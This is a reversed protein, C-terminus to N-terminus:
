EAAKYVEIEFIGVGHADWDIADEGGLQEIEDASLKNWTIQIETTTVKDFTTKNVVDAEVGYGSGNTVDVFEGDENLYQITYDAAFDTGGGTLWAARAAERDASKDSWFMIGFGDVTVPDDWVLSLTFTNTLGNPTAQGWDGYAGGVEGSTAAYSSEPVIGDIIGYVNEWSACYDEDVDFGDEMMCINDGPAMADYESGEPETDAPETDADTGAPETGDNGETNASANTGESANTGAPANTGTGDDGKQEDESECATMAFMAAVMMVALLLAIFKKM